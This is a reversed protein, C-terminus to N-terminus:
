VIVSEEDVGSLFVSVARGGEMSNVRSGRMSGGLDRADTSNWRFRHLYLHVLGGDTDCVLGVQAVRPRNQKRFQVRNGTSGRDAGCLFARLGASSKKKGQECNRFCFFSRTGSARAPQASKLDANALQLGM